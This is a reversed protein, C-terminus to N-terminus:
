SIDLIDLLEGNQHLEMTIDAGGLTTSFCSISLPTMTSTPGPIGKPFGSSLISSGQDFLSLEEM